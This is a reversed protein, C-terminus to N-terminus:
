PKWLGNKVSHGAKKHEADHLEVLDEDSLSELSERTHRGKHIGDNLFHEILTDRSEHSTGKRDYFSSKRETKPSGKLSAIKRLITDPDIGGSPFEHVRKEDRCIWFRPISGRYFGPTADIDVIKVKIGQAKIRDLKGSSKYSQCPGCWSASFMVVYYDSEVHAADVAAYRGTVPFILPPEAFCFTMVLAILSM